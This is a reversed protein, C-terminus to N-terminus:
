KKRSQGSQSERPTLCVQLGDRAAMRFHGRASKSVQANKKTNVDLEGILPRAKERRVEFEASDQEVSVLYSRMTIKDNSPDVQGDEREIAKYLATLSFFPAKLGLLWDTHKKIATLKGATSGDKKCRKQAQGHHMALGSGLM